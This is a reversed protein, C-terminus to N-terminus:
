FRCSYTVDSLTFVTAISMHSGYTWTVTGCLASFIAKSLNWTALRRPSAM